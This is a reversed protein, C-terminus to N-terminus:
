EFKRLIGQMWRPVKFLVCDSCIGENFRYSTNNEADYRKWGNYHSLVMVLWVTACSLVVIFLLM